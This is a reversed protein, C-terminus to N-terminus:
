SVELSGVKECNCVRSFNAQAWQKRDYGQMQVTRVVCGAPRDIPVGQNGCYCCEQDLTASRRRSGRGLKTACSGRKLKVQVVSDQISSDRGRRRETLVRWSRHMRATRRWRRRANTERRVRMEHMQSGFLRGGKRYQKSTSSTRSVGTQCRMDTTTLCKPCM